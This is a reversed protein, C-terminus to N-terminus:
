QVILGVLRGSKIDILFLASPLFEMRWLLNYLFAKRYPQMTTDFAIFVYINHKNNSM